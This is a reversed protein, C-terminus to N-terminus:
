KRKDSVNLWKIIGILHKIRRITEESSTIWEQVIGDKPILNSAVGPRTEWLIIIIIRGVLINPCHLSIQPELWEKM